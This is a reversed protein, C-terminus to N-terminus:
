EENKEEWESYGIEQIRTITYKNQIKYLSTMELKKLRHINFFYKTM